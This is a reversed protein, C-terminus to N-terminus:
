FTNKTYYNSNGFYNAENEFINNQYGNINVLSYIIAFNPNIQIHKINIYFNSIVNYESYQFTHILEHCITQKNWNVITKDLTKITYEEGGIVEKHSNHTYVYQKCVKRWITNGFSQGSDKFDEIEGDDVIFNDSKKDFVISGTALTIKANFNFDKAFSFYVASGLTIPDVQCHIKGDYRLHTFYIDMEFSDFLKENRYGNNAISTGLSHVLKGPWVYTYTDDISSKEILKKGAYNLSGGVCGKWFGSIFAKGFSEKQNRYKSKHRHIGSGIGSIIGSSITNFAAYKLDQNQGYTSLTILTSIILILTKM